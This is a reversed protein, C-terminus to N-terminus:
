VSDQEGPAGTGYEGKILHMYAETISSEADHFKGGWGSEIAKQIQYGTVLPGTWTKAFIEPRQSEVQVYQFGNHAKKVDKKEMEKEKKEESEEEEEPEKRVVQSSKKHEEMSLDDKDAESQPNESNIISAQRSQGYNNTAKVKDGIEQEDTSKPKAELVGGHAVPNSDGLKSIVTELQKTLKEINESNQVSVKALIALVDEDKKVDTPKTETNQSM